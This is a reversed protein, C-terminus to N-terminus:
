ELSKRVSICVKKHPPANDELVIPEELDEYAEFWFGQLPGTLVQDRYVTSNIHVDPDLESFMEPGM